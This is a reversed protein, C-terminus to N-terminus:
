SEFVTNFHTTRANAEVPPLFASPAGAARTLIIYKKEVGHTTLLAGCTARSRSFSAAESQIQSISMLGLARIVGPAIFGRGFSLDPRSSFARSPSSFLGRAGKPVPKTAAKANAPPRKRLVVKRESISKLVHDLLGTDGVGKARALGRVEQRPLWKGGAERLVEVCANSAIEIRADSWRSVVPAGPVLEKKEKKKKPEKEKEKKKKPPPPEKKAPKAEEPEDKVDSAPVLGDAGRPRLPRPPLARPKASSMVKGPTGTGGNTKSMKSAKSLKTEFKLPEFISSAAKRKAAAERALGEEKIRIGGVSKNAKRQAAMEKDRRAKEKKRVIRQLRLLLSVLDGLTKPAYKGMIKEYRSIVELVNGTVLSGAAGIAYANAGGAGVWASVAGPNTGGMAKFDARVNELTFGRLREAAKRHTAGTNGFSGKGFQYGFTGYWTKGCAVPNLLRFEVGYKQSVDEVSVERARLLHCIKEWIQILQQGSLVRSGAERGNIRKLHGCGNAHLTGHMLHTQYDLISTDCDKEGCSICKKEKIPMAATCIQCIRKGKLEPKLDTRFDTHIIFHYQKRTVPHHHWGICRCCDCHVRTSELMTEEYVRLNTEYKTGKALTVTHGLVGGEVYYDDPETENKV